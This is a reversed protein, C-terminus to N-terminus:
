RLRQWAARGGQPQSPDEITSWTRMIISEVVSVATQSRGHGRALLRYWVQQSTSSDGALTTEHITEIVWLPATFGDAGFSALREKTLPDIGAEFGHIQWWSLSEFEPHPVLTDTGHVTFGECISACVTPPPGEMAMLWQEAWKLASQASQTARETDQLNAALQRQLVADASASLGLLTLITLFILCLLLVMGSDSKVPCRSM